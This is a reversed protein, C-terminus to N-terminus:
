RESGYPLIDSLYKELANYGRQNKAFTQIASGGFARTISAVVRHSRTFDSLFIIPLDPDGKKESIQRIRLMAMVTKGIDHPHDDDNEDLESSSGQAQSPSTNLERQTLRETAEDLALDSIIAGFPGREKYIKLYSRLACIPHVKFENASYQSGVFYLEAPLLELRKRLSLCVSRSNEVILVRNSPRRHAAPLSSRRASAVHMDLASEKLEALTEDTPRAPSIVDAGARVLEQMLSPEPNDCAFIITRREGERRRLEDLAMLIQVSKPLAESREPDRFLKTLELVDAEYQRIGAWDSAFDADLVIVDHDRVQPANEIRRADPFRVRWAAFVDEDRTLVAIQTESSQSADGAKDAEATIAPSAPAAHDVRKEEPITISIESGRGMAPEVKASRFSMRGPQNGYVWDWKLQSLYVLSLPLGIGSKELSNRTIDQDYLASAVAAKWPGPTASLLYDRQAELERIKEGDLGEGYDRVIFEIGGEKRQVTLVITAYIDGDGLELPDISDIANGILNVLLETVMELDASFRFNTEDHDLVIELDLLRRLNEDLVRDRLVAFVAEIRDKVDVLFDINEPRTPLGLSNSKDSFSRFRGMLSEYHELLSRLYELPGGLEELVARRMGTSQDIKREIVRLEAAAPAFVLKPLNHAVFSQYARRAELGTSLGYDLFLLNSFLSRGFGSLLRRHEDTLNGKLTAATLISREINVVTPFAYLFQGRFARRWLAQMAMLFAVQRVTLDDDKYADKLRGTLAELDLRCAEDLREFASEFIAEYGESLSILWPSRRRPHGWILCDQLMDSDNSAADKSLSLVHDALANVFEPGDVSDDIQIDAYAPHRPVSADRGGFVTRTAWPRKARKALYQVLSWYQPAGTAGRQEAHWTIDFFAIAYRQRQTDHSFAPDCAIGSQRHKVAPSWYNTALYGAGCNELPARIHKICEGILDDFKESERRINRWTASVEAVPTKLENIELLSTSIHFRQEPPLGGLKSFLDALDAELQEQM